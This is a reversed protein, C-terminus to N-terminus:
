HYYKEIDYFAEQYYRNETDVSVDVNWIENEEYENINIKINCIEWWNTKFVHIKSAVNIEKNSITLSYEYMGHILGRNQFTVGSSNIEYLIKEEKDKGTVGYIWM